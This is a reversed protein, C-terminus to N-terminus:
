FINFYKLDNFTAFIMLFVLLILGFRYGYEQIREALPRGSAAEIGYYLLHGGDLMPIPFLNILGLNISLVAMFWLVTSFGRETAQGSYKGIRLIGSLDDTKRSGTIMQGVAKLTSISINYTESVGTILAEGLGLKTHSIKGSAIGLRGAKITNGFIDTTEVITPTVTGNIIEGGRQLSYPIPLGPNLSIIRQIQEFREIKQGDLSVVVDGSKFGAQEASSGELIEGVEPLTEPRGYYFFFLTLIVIALLFNAIPGAAVVASKQKLSKLHFAYRRDKKSMKAIKAKDPTSAESMDGFMKVYGGLPFASIKWRTKDKDYWGYIEPGFGISFAEVRVGCLKAVYYHGFEHVFVIVSIIVVFSLFNHLFDSIWEM